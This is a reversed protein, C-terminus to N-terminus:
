MPRPASGSTPRLNLALATIQTRVLFVAREPERFIKPALKHWRHYANDSDAANEPDFGVQLLTAERQHKKLVEINAKRGADVEDWFVKLQGGNIAKVLREAVERAADPVLPSSTPGEHQLSIVKRDGLRQQQLQLTTRWSGDASELNFIHSGQFMCQYTYGHVCHGMLNHEAQLAETTNRCTIKVGEPTVFNDLLPQWVSPVNYRGIGQEMRDLQAHWDKNARHLQYATSPRFMQRTAQGFYSKQRWDFGDNDGYLLDVWDLKAKVCAQVLAPLAVQLGARNIMDSMSDSRRLWSDEYHQLEGVAAIFAPTVQTNRLTSRAIRGAIQAPDRSNAEGNDPTQAYRLAIAAFDRILDKPKRDLLHQWEKIKYALQSQARWQAPEQPRWEPALESYLTFHKELSEAFTPRVPTDCWSYKPDLDVFRHGQLSRLFEMSVWTTKGIRPENTKDAIAQLIPEGSDIVSTYHRDKFVHFLCPYASYAHRRNRKADADVAPWDKWVSEGSLWNYVALDSTRTKRMIALVEPDLARFFKYYEKRIRRREEDVMANRLETYLQKQLETQQPAKALGGAVIQEKFAPELYNDVAKNAADSVDRRFIKPTLPERTDIFALKEDIERGTCLVLKGLQLFTLKVPKLHNPATGCYTAKGLARSVSALRVGTLEAKENYFRTAVVADAEDSKPQPNIIFKTHPNDRWTKYLALLEANGRGTIPERWFVTLYRELAAQSRSHNNM